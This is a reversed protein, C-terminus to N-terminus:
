ATLAWVGIALFVAAALYMAAVVGATAQPATGQPRRAGPRAVARHALPPWRSPPLTPAPPPVAPRAPHARPRPAPRRHRLPHPRTRRPPRARATGPPLRGPRRHPRRSRDRATRGPRADAAAPRRLRRTPRAARAQPGQPGFGAPLPGLQDFVEIPEEDIAPEPLLEAARGGAGQACRDGHPLPRGPGSAAADGVVEWLPEPVGPPRRRCAAARPLAGGAGPRGAQPRHAPLPRGPRGRLPRRPLRARRRATARARLLRAHRGRLRGRDAPPRGQADRHRLGVAARAPARHRHGGAPHEGAQHGPARRGRRAGRVARGAVPRAARVRLAAAAPRLGRDPAGAFRRAGPGHHVAGQRRRGGLERPALVHPHDIRMAQERVFRMLAHADSQQLVKAAVYRRRRHDWARWVAGVGGRGIPDVLEYRGAFVEGM